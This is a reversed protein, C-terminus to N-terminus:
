LFDSLSKRNQNMETLSWNSVKDFWQGFRFTDVLWRSTNLHHIMQVDLFAPVFSTNPVYSTGWILLFVDIYIQLRKSLDLLRETALKTSFLTLYSIIYNRLKGLNRKRYNLIHTIQPTQNAQAAKELKQSSPM